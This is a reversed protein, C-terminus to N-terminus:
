LNVTFNLVNDRVEVDDKFLPLSRLRQYVVEAAEPCMFISRKVDRYRQSDLTGKVMAMHKSAAERVAACEAPSLVNRVLWIGHELREVNAKSTEQSHSIGLM